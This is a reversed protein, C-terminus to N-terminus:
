SCDLLRPFRVTNFTLSQYGQRIVIGDDNILCILSVDNDNLVMVVIGFFSEVGLLHSPKCFFFQRM